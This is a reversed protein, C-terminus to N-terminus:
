PRLWGARRWCGTARPRAEDGARQEIGLRRRLWAALDTVPNIPCVWAAIPAGASCRSLGGARDGAGILATAEPAHRAVLRQLLILPDTLPLVDLTM